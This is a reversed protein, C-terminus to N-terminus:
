TPERLLSTLAELKTRHLYSSPHAIRHCRRCAPFGAVPVYLLLVANVCIPCRWLPRIGRGAGCSTTQILVGAVQAEQPVAGLVDRLVDVSIAACSSARTRKM